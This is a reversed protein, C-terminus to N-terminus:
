RVVVEPSWMEFARVVAHGQGVGLGLQGGAQLAQQRSWPVHRRQGDLEVVLQQEDLQLSLVQERRDNASLQWAALTRCGPACHLVRLRGDRELRVRHAGRPTWGLVVDLLHAHQLREFRVVVRRAEVLPRRRLVEAYGNGGDIVMADDPLPRLEGRVPLWEVRGLTGLWEAIRADSAQGGGQSLFLAVCFSQAYLRQHAEIDDNKWADSPKGLFDALPIWQKRDIMRRCRELKHGYEPMRLADIGYIESLVREALVDASGEVWWGPQRAYDGALRLQLQHSLEHLLGSEAPGPADLPSRGALTWRLHSAEASSFGAHNAFRGGAVRTATARYDPAGHFAAFLRGRPLSKGLLAALREVAREALSVLHAASAREEIPVQIRVHASEVIVRRPAACASLLLMLALSRV